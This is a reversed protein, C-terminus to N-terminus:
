ILRYGPLAVLPVALTPGLECGQGVTQVPHTDGGFLAMVTGREPVFIAGKNNAPSLIYALTDPWCPCM